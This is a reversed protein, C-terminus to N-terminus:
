ILGSMRRVAWTCGWLGFSLVLVWWRDWASTRVIREPRNRDRHEVFAQHLMEPLQDVADGELAKAGSRLALDQMALPRAVVDLREKLNSTVDFSTEAAMETEAGTLARATYHGPPLRGFSVQFVGSEEDGIPVITQPKALSDSILQVNPTSKWVDPRLLLTATASQSSSLTVADTRLAIQQNPLLGAHSVLWRVLSRWLQAYVADQQQHEPPLFAWRWMGSGELVVVRGRGTPRFTILPVAEAEGSSTALVTTLPKVDEPKASVALSPLLALNQGTEPLWQASEGMDTLALRFHSERDPSWEVPMLAELQQNLQSAPAGRFCVLTGESTTLWSKLQRLSEDTLYAETSRGLLIIQFQSLFEPDSLVQSAGKHIKWQDSSVNTPDASEADATMASTRQVQRQLFRGPAMQVVSTLAVSPDASLTRILFKSDWYPKGELLLISVPQDIVRLQLTSSNNLDTVENDLPKASVAYNYLGSQKQSVYFREEIPTNDTLSVVRSEVTEGNRQLLLETTQPNGYSHSLRVTIPVEQDAFALEQSQRLSIQLDRVGAQTGITRVFLPTSLANAREGIKRLAAASAGSTDIGDSLVLVAQGPPRDEGLVQNLSGALDTVGGVPTLQALSQLDTPSSTQDFARLRIEYDEGLQDVVSQAIAQGVALRSQGTANGDATGMSASRDILVTLLPKGPPPPSRRVWIPNLLIVLPILMCVGMWGMVWALRRRPLKSATRRAYVVLIAAAAIALPLWLALPIHPDFRIM